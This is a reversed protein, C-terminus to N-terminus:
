PAARGQWFRPEGISDQRGTVTFGGRLPTVSEAGNSVSVDWKGYRANVGVNLSAHLQTPNDVWTDGQGPGNLYIGDASGDKTLILRTIGQVFHTDAATVVVPVNSQNRLSSNPAITLLRPGLPPAYSYYITDTKTTTNGPRAKDRYMVYVTRTGSETGGTITWSKSTKYPEWVAGAFGADNSVMMEGVGAEADTASLTLQVSTSQTEAAGANILVSGNPATNDPTASKQVRVAKDIQGATLNTYVQNMRVTPSVDFTDGWTGNSLQYYYNGSLMKMPFEAYMGNLPKNYNNSLTCTADEGNPAFRGTWTQQVAPTSLSGLDTTGAVNTNKYAPWSWKPEQYNFSEDGAQTVVGNNIWVRRYGPYEGLTATM